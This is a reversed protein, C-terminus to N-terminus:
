FIGKFGKTKLRYIFDIAKNYGKELTEKENEPIDGLVYDILPVDKDRGIGVKVRPFEETGLEQIISKIGNHGGSSGNKRVKMEGIPISTDDYVVVVNQSLIELEKAFAAVAVGSSNMGTTPRVLILGDIRAFDLPLKEHKQWVCEFRCGGSEFLFTKVIKDLVNFGVNHRTNIYKEEPNNLGVIMITPKKAIFFNENLEIVKKEGFTVQLINKLPEEDNGLRVECDRLDKHEDILNKIQFYLEYLTMNKLGVLRGHKLM